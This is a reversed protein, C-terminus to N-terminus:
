EQGPAKCPWHPPHPRPPRDTRSWTEGPPLAARGRYEAEGCSLSPGGLFTDPPLPVPCSAGLQRLHLGHARLPHPARLTQPGRAACAVLACGCRLWSARPPGLVCFGQSTPGRSRPSLCLSNPGQPSHLGLPSRVALSLSSASALLSASGPSGPASTLSPPTLCPATLLQPGLGSSSSPPLLCPIRRPGLLATSLWTRLEQASPRPSQRALPLM